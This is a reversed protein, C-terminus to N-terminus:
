ESIVRLEAELGTIELLRRVPQSPNVIKLGLRDDDRLQHHGLLVRLGSSDMFTVASLDVLAPRSEDLAFLMEDLKSCTSADVEGVARVVGDDDHVTLLEDGGM